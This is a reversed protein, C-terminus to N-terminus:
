DINQGNDNRNQIWQYDDVAVTRIAAHTRLASPSLIEVTLTVLLACSLSWLMALALDQGLRPSSPQVPLTPSQAVTVNSVREKDLAEAIRAEEQKRSYLLYHDENEKVRRLIDNQEVTASALTTLEKRYREAVQHLRDRLAEVGAVEVEANVLDIQAAQYVQNISSSEENIPQALTRNIANKADAIHQDAVRVLRENSRGQNLLDTRRDELGALIMAQHELLNLNLTTRVQTTIRPSITKLKERSEFVKKRYQLLQADAQEYAAQAEVAHRGFADRDEPLAFTSFARRFHALEDESDRLERRWALSQRQFFDFAGQRARVRIRTQPYIMALQKLVAKALEPTPAEYSLQLVNSKKVPGIKLDRQLRRLAKDITLPTTEGGSQDRGFELRELGTSLVVQRLVDTSKILEVESNVQVESLDAPMNANATRAVLLEEPRSALLFKMRSEYKKPLSVILLASGLFIAGTVLLLLKARAQLVHLVTRPSLGGSQLHYPSAYPSQM